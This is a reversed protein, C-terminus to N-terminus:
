TALSAHAPPHPISTRLTWSMVSLALLAPALAVLFAIKVHAVHVIMVLILRDQHVLIVLDANQADQSPMPSTFLLNSPRTYESMGHANIRPIPPVLPVNVAPRPPTTTSDLPASIPIVLSASAPSPV